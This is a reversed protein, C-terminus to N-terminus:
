VAERILQVELIQIWEELVRAFDMLTESVIPLSLISHVPSKLPAYIAKVQGPSWKGKRLLEGVMWYHQKFLHNLPWKLHGVVQDYATLPLFSAIDM